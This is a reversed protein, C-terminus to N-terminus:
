IAQHVSLLSKFLCMIARTSWGTLPTKKTSKGISLFLENDSHCLSLSLGITKSFTRRMLLCLAHRMGQKTMYSGYSLPVGRGWQLLHRFTQTSLGSCGNKNRRIIPLAVPLHNALTNIQSTKTGLCALIVLILNRLVPRKLV